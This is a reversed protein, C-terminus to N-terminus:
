HAIERSPYRGKEDNLNSNWLFILQLLPFFFEILKEKKQPCFTACSPSCVQWYTPHEWTTASSTNGLPLLSKALRRSPTSWAQRPLCRVIMQWSSFRFTADSNRTGQHDYIWV